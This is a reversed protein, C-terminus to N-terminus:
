AQVHAAIENTLSRYAEAVASTPDYTFISQTAAISNKARVSYPIVSDFIKYPFDARLGELVQRAHTTKEHKTVLIGAVALTPNVEHRVEEVTELFKRLVPVSMHESSVPVLVEHAATLANTNLLGLAPPCDLIIFTYADGLPRLVRELLRERNLKAALQTELHALTGSAPLLSVGPISTPQIARSAAGEPTTGALLDYLTVPLEKEDFGLANTLSAHPDLDVLLVTSTGDVALAHALNLSTVTKGVGGKHNAVAIIKTM